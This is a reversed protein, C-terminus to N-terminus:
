QDVQMEKRWADLKAVLSGFQTKMIEEVHEQSDRIEQKMEDRNTKRDAEM